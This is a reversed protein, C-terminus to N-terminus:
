FAVWALPHARSALARPHALSATNRERSNVTDSHIHVTISYPICHIGFHFVFVVRGSDMQFVNYKYEGDLSPVRSERCINIILGIVNAFLDARLLRM